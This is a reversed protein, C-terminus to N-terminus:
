CDGGFQKENLNQPVAMRPQGTNGKEASHSLWSHSDWWNGNGRVNTLIQALTGFKFVFDLWIKFM